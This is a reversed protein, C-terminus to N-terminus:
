PPFARQWVEDTGYWEARPDGTLLDVLREIAFEEGQRWASELPGDAAKPTFEQADKFAREMGVFLVHLLEHVIQRGLQGEPTTSRFRLVARRQNSDIDACSRTEFEPPELDSVRIDWDRLRLKEQWSLVLEDSPRM